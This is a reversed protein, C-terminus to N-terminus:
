RIQNVARAAATRINKPLPVFDLAPGFAQGSGLAYKVFEKLSAGNGLPDTPQLVVYTFTSIPYAIKAKKPANVIHIEGNASQKGVRAANAINALNPVEYRGAANGIAVAPLQHAILYSVAIYAISGRTGQLLTVM